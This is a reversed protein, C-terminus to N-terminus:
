KKAKAKDKDPAGQPQASLLRQLDEKLLQNKAKETEVTEKHKKELKECEEQFSQEMEQVSKTLGDVSHELEKCDRDLKQIEANMENKKQEALLAKRMGYAIASEYLAQYSEITMRLEDRVRVLLFGRELCQITIQRILEDVTLFRCYRLM